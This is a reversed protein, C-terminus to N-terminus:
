EEEDLLSHVESEINRLKLQCYQILEQAKRVLDALQDVSTNEDQLELIIKDLAHKAAEFSLDNKKSKAM